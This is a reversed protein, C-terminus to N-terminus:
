WDRWEAVYKGTRDDRRADMWLRYDEPEERDAAAYQAPDIHYVDLMYLKIRNKRLAELFAEGQVRDAEASGTSPVLIRCIVLSREGKFFDETPSDVDLDAPRSSTVAIKCEGFVPQTIERVVAELDDRRLRAAFNDWLQPTDYDDVRINWDQYEPSTCTIKGHVDMEFMDGYQELMYELSLNELWECRYKEEDSYRCDADLYARYGKPLKWASAVARDTQAYRDGDFFLVDLQSMRYGKAELAAVLAMGRERFDDSYPLCIRCQILGRKYTFFDEASADANLMSPMGGWVYVECEGLIPEAIETLLAEIDDRRLRIAFNDTITDEEGGLGISWDKYVPDTCFLTGYVDMEFRDGYKEVMHDLRPKYRNYQAEELRQWLPKEEGACGTLLTLLLAVAMIGCCIRRKM